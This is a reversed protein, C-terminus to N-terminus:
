VKEQWNAHTDCWAENGVGSHWRAAAFHGCVLKPGTNLPLPVVTEEEIAIGLRKVLQSVAEMYAMERRHVEDRDAELAAITEPTM